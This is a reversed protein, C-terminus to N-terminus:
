DMPMTNDMQPIDISDFIVKNWQQDTTMRTLSRTHFIKGTNDKTALIHEGSNTTKGLWIGEIKQENNM